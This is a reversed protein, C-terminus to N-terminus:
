HQGLAKYVTLAFALQLPYQSRRALTKQQQPNYVDFVFRRVSIINGDINILPDKNEKVEQVIGKTWNYVGSVINRTLM